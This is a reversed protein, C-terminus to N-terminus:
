EIEVVAEEQIKLSRLDVPLVKSIGKEPMTVGYITDTNAMTRKNHTVIIFQVEGAFRKIIKNFKDINADDLPADVEDFVCFPAPRLLYIAFLLSTATLTKEGGSLQKITLPRKGKPQALIEIKSETPNDPDELILDCHDEESFLTRFIDQFNTRIEEFAEMFAKRAAREIEAITKELSAKAELLDNRQGEIFEHREKIEEYAELAMPNINGLKDLRQRATQIGDRLEEEPLEDEPHQEALWKDDIELQFEASIRERVTTLQMKVETLRNQLANLRTDLNERQRQIERLQRERETIGERSQYYLNELENVETQVDQKKGSVVSLEKATEEQQVILKEIDDDAKQLDQKNQELRDLTRQQNEKKYGVEKELNEVHNKYRFYEMNQMNYSESYDALQRNREAIQREIEEQKAEDYELETELEDIEPQAEENESQLVQIKEQAQAIKNRNLQVTQSVQQHQAELSVKRQRVEDLEDRLRQIEAKQSSERLSEGKQEAETIEAKKAEAKEELEQIQAKLEEIQQQKGLRSNETNGSGSGGRWLAGRQLLKGDRSLLTIGEGVSKEPNESNPLFYVHNLLLDVAKQFKADTAAVVETAPRAEPHPSGNAPTSSTPCDELVLFRAKGKQNENLLRLGTAATAKDPVVYCDQYDELLTALAPAYEPPCDFIDTLLTTQAAWDSQADLFKVAEGFGELSELWASRLQLENQRTDLQREIQNLEDRLQQVFEQNKAIQQSLQEEQREKEAINQTLTDHQQQVELLNDNARDLQEQYDLNEIEIQELDQELSSIKIERVEIERQKMQLDDRKVLVQNNLMEGEQKLIDVQEKYREYNAKAQNLKTEAELFLQQTNEAQAKLREVEQQAAESNQQEQKIKWALSEKKDKLFRFREEQVKQDSELQRVQHFLQGLHKRRGTLIREREEVEAKTDDLQNELQTLQDTFDQRAQQEKQIKDTLDAYETSSERFQRKALALSYNKYVTLADKHQAAQKAQRELTRMNKQVEHLIDEVRDLDGETGKLKQETEKKRAKYKAIGSAEEFMRRRANETDNLIEDVMRLEIIAYNNSSIGAKLLLETIDKRRCNEGNIFYDSQGSRSYKRTITVESFAAPLLGRNNEFTLAVLAYPAHKRSSTGNFILNSMKDSRLQRNRQEGLVWRLADVINSKGCGNPGVVGTIGETFEVNVKDGFSKFGHIELRTLLM